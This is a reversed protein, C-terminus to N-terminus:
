NQNVKLESFVVVRKDYNQEVESWTGECTILNLRPKDRQTFVLDVPFQSNEYAKVETVVFTYTTEKEDTVVIEDGVSLTELFYFVAPAGTYTDLHGTIVASGAQGPKVGLHYWGVTTTSKPVDMNREEDLGVPEVQTNVGLKEITIQKPNLPAVTPLPSPSAQQVPSPIVETLLSSTAKPQLSLTLALFSGGLIGTIIVLFYLLRKM